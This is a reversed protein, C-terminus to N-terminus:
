FLNEGVIVLGTYRVGKFPRRGYGKETMVNGFKKGSVPREHNEECWKVYRAILESSQVEGDTLPATCEDLFRGIIDQENRYAVTAGTVAEPYRLGDAQWDLCGAVAWSLIGEAEGRLKSKLRKDQQEDPIVVGFPILKLRRWLGHDTGRTNPIHNTCLIATHTPEFSWADERMRRATITEDGTLEKVAAESLRGTEESESAVVFRKGFLSARETPHQDRHSAMLLTPSAKMAYDSGLVYMMTELVTTKGNAGVGHFIPLINETTVGVLAYGFLRQIFTILSEDGAFVTKLTSEWLPCAAAQDYGVPCLKTIGDGRAHERLEGTRLDLTGNACNLFWPDADLQSPLIPIGEESKALALMAEIAKRGEAARAFSIMSDREGDGAEMVESWVARATDKARRVAHGYDDIKWRKGDWNLWKGWPHCYRLNQGHRRRLREALGLDTLNYEKEHAKKPTYVTCLTALESWAANGKDRCFDRVDKGHSKEISYPLLAAEVEAGAHHLAEAWRAMGKQGPEDADGIVRIKKGDFPSCGAPEPHENAGQSNTWCTENSGAPRVSLMALCDSPGEVKWATKAKQLEALPGIIGRRSGATTKVKVWKELKGGEGFVPLDKGSTAYLSWGCIAAGEEGKAGERRQTLKRADWVPLALVHWRGMYIALRGGCLRVAEPTIPPKKRCWWAVIAENWHLFKLRSMPDAAPKGQKHSGNKSPPPGIGVREADARLEDIFQTGRILAKMGHLSESLGEGGHDKYRGTKVNVAASANKDERGWAHCKIWGRQDPGGVFRLGLAVYEARVDLRDIIEQPDIKTTPTRAM